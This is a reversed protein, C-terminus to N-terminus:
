LNNKKKYDLLSSKISNPQNTLITEPKGGTNIPEKFLPQEKIMKKIVEEVKSNEINNTKFKLYDYFESKVQYKKFINITEKEKIEQNLKNLKNEAENVKNEIEQSVNNETLSETTQQTNTENELM